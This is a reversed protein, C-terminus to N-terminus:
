IQAASVCEAVSEHMPMIADLKARRLALAVDGSAGAIRVSGGHSGIARRLAVLSGMCLSAIYALETLDLVVLRPRTACVRTVAADLTAARGAGGDGRLRVISAGNDQTVDVQLTGM